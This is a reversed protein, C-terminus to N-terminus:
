FGNIETAPPLDEKLRRHFSEEGDDCELLYDIRELYIRATKIFDLGIEFESLTEISFENPNEEINRLILEEAFDWDYHRQLYNFSGGSM